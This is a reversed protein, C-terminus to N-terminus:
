RKYIESGGSDYVRGYGIFAGRYESMNCMTGNAVLKDMVANTYYLYIYEHTGGYESFSYDNIRYRPIIGQSLLRHSGFTDTVSVYTHSNEKITPALWKAACGESDWIYECAYAEGESNLLVSVPVGFIQYAVGTVFMSYSILIVLIIHCSHLKLGFRESIM